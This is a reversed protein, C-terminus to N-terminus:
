KQGGNLARKLGRHQLWYMVMGSIKGVGYVSMLLIMWPWLENQINETSAHVTEAVFDRLEQSSTAAGHTGLCGCLLLGYGAALLGYSIRRMISSREGGAPVCHQSGERM